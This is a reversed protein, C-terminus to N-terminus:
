KGEMESEKSESNVAEADDPAPEVGYVDNGTPEGAYWSLDNVEAYDLALLEAQYADPADIVLDVFYPMDYTLKVQYKPM